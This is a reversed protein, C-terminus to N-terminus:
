FNRKRKKIAKESSLEKQKEIKTSDKESNEKNEETKNKDSQSIDINNSKKTKNQEQKKNCSFVVFVIMAIILIKKLKIM